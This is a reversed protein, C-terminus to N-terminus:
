IIRTEAILKNNFYVKTPQEWQVYIKANSLAEAKNLFSLKTVIDFDNITTVTYLRNYKRLM